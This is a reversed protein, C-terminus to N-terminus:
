PQRRLGALVEPTFPDEGRQLAALWDAWPHRTQKGANTPLRARALGAEIDESAGGLDGTRARAFGRLLLGAGEHPASLAVGADCAPLAEHADGFLAAYWCLQTQLYWSDPIESAGRRLVQLADDFRGAGRFAREALRYYAVSQTPYDQILGEAVSAAPEYLRAQLLFTGGSYRGFPTRLWWLLAACGVALLGAAAAAALRAVRPVFQPDAPDLYRLLRQWAPM